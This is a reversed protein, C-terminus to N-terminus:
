LAEMALAVEAPALPVVDPLPEGAAPVDDRCVRYLRAGPPAEGRDPRVERAQAPDRNVLVLGRHTGGDDSWRRLV